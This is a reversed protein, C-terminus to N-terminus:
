LAGLTLAADFISRLFEAARAVAEDKGLDGERMVTPEQRPRRSKLIRRAASLFPRAQSIYGFCSRL